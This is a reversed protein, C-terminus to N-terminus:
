LWDLGTKRSVLSLAMHGLGAVGAVIEVTSLGTHASIWPAAKSAFLALAAGKIAKWADRIASDNVAPADSLPDSM